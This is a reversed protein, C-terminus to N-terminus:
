FKQRNTNCELAHSVTFVAGGLWAGLANAVNLASHNLSAALMQADPAVDLSHTQLAPGLGMSTAGILFINITVAPLSVPTFFFCAQAVLSLVMAVRIARM